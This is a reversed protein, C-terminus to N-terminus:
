KENSRADLIKGFIPSGIGLLICKLFENRGVRKEL